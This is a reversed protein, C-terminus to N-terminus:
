LDEEIDPQEAAWKCWQRHHHAPVEYTPIEIRGFRDVGITRNGLLIILGDGLLADVIKQVAQPEQGIAIREFADIQAQSRGKCPHNTM